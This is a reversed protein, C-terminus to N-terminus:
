VGIEFWFEQDFEDINSLPIEVEPLGKVLEILRNVDWALIGAKSKRFHYQKRMTM